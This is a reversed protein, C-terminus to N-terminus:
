VLYKFNKIKCYKNFKIATFNFFLEKATLFFKLYTYTLLLSSNGYNFCFNLKFLKKTCQRTYSLQKQSYRLHTM